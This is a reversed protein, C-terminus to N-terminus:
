DNVERPSVVLGDTKLEHDLAVLVAEEILKSDFGQQQLDQAFRALWEATPLKKPISM